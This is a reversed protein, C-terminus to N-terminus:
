QETNQNSKNIGENMMGAIPEAIKWVISDVYHKVANEYKDDKIIDGLKIVFCLRDPFAGWEPNGTSLELGKFEIDFTPSDKQYGNRFRVIDFKKPKYPYITPATVIAGDLLRSIWYSTNDRYEEKKEGHLIMEFWKRKLTLHLIEM